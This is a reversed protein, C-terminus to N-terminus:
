KTYLIKESIRVKHHLKNIKANQKCWNRSFKAQHNALPNISELQNSSIQKGQYELCISDSASVVKAVGLIILQNTNIWEHNISTLARETQLSM